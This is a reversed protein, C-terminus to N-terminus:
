CVSPAATSCVEQQRQFRAGDASLPQLRIMDTLMEVGLRLTASYPVLRTSAFACEQGHKYAASRKFVSNCGPMPCPYKAAGDVTVAEITVNKLVEQGKEKTVYKV